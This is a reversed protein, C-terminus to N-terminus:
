VGPWRWNNIFQVLGPLTTEDLIIKDQVEVGNEATIQFSGPYPGEQVYLGDGLYTKTM